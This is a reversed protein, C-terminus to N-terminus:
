KPEDRQRSSMLVVILIAVGLLAAGIVAAYLLWIRFADQATM